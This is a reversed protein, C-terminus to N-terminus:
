GVAKGAADRPTWVTGYGLADITRTLPRDDIWEAVDFPRRVLRTELTFKLGEEINSRYFGDLLPTHRDALTDGAYDEVYSDRPTGTLAFIDFVKDRNEEQSGWHAAQVFARLVREVIEPQEAAFKEHVTLSGFTSGPAPTGKTTYLVKTLGQKVTHLTSNGQGVIVDVDGTQIASIQDAGQIDYLVVDQNTLGVSELIRNLSLEFITGRQFAVKRGKLEALSNIGAEPRAVLYTPSIGSGALVKTPVGAGRGVLNPLGGYSAFDLQRNALAENIAPGTGRPFQWEIAIKDAEFEKELLELGRLLGITANGYPKGSANGPGALRIVEVKTAALSLSPAALAGLAAAGALFTRRSVTM